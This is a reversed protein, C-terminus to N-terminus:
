ISRRDAYKLHSMRLQIEAWLNEDEGAEADGAAAPEGPEADGAADPQFLEDDEELGFLDMM